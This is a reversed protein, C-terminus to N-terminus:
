TKEGEQAKSVSLTMTDVVEKSIIHQLSLLLIANGTSQEGTVVVGEVYDAGVRATVMSPAPQIDAADIKLIKIVHDVRVGFVTGDTHEVVLLLLVSPYATQRNLNFLKEIDLVPIIKGRLNVVGIIFAPSGPVPTIEIGKVVEHVEGIPAAYQETDLAFMVLQRSSKDADALADSM